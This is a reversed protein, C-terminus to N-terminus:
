YLLYKKRDAKFKIPDGKWDFSYTKLYNRAGTVKEFMKLTSMPLSQMSKAFVSDESLLKILQFEAGYLQPITSLEASREIRLGDFTKTSDGYPVTYSERRLSFGKPIVQRVCKEFFDPKVLKSGLRLFPKDTGIGVSVIGLEGIAGLLACGIASEFNPINPSPAVWRFNTSNWYMTRKWGSMKIVELELKEAGAFWRKGKAMTALEGLTMGHLYPIPLMGVFSFQSSDLINGEVRVGSLPNPRDLIVFKIKNASSSEMALIMTSLYTYARVGIDQMDFVLVDIGRLMSKTPKRTTGYLSYVPVGEFTESSDSKTGAKRSGRLGHEPTFLAKLVFSKQHAFLKASFEGSRTVSTQNCILGVKKGSLNAYKSGILNELGTRVQAQSSSFLLCILLAISKRILQPM